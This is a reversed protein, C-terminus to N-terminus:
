SQLAVSIFAHDKGTDDTIEGTTIGIAGAAAKIGTVIAIGSDGGSSTEGTFRRTLSTLNVNVFNGSNGFGSHQVMQVVLTNPATTTLDPFSFSVSAAQMGKSVANIPDGVYVGRFTAGVMFNHDASAPFVPNTEASSQAIRYFASLDDASLNNPQAAIKTWGAPADLESDYTGFVLLFDDKQHAPLTVTISGTSSAASGVAVFTPPDM